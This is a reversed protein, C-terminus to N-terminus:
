GAAVAQCHAVVNYILDYLATSIRGAQDRTM